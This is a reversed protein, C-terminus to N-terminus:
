VFQWLLCIKPPLILTLWESSDSELLTEYKETFNMQLARMMALAEIDEAGRM